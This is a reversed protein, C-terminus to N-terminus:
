IKENGRRVSRGKRLMRDWTLLVEDREAWWRADQRAEPVDMLRVAINFVRWLEEHETEPPLSLTRRNPRRPATLPRAKRSRERAIATRFFEHIDPIKTSEM